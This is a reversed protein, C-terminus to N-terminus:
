VVSQPQNSGGLAQQQHKAREHDRPLEAAVASFPGRHTESRLEGRRDGSARALIQNADGLDAGSMGPCELVQQVDETESLRELALTAGLQEGGCLASAKEVAKLPREPCGPGHSTADGRQGEGRQPHRAALEPNRRQDSVRIRINAEGGDRGKGVPRRRGGGARENICELPEVERGLSDDLFKSGEPSSRGDM